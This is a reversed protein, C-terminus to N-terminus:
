SFLIEKRIMVLDFTDLVDDACLDGAKWDALQTNPKALLWEQLLVLDAVTLEGDSNVDGRISNKIDETATYYYEPEVTEKFYVRFYDMSGNMGSTETGGITYVADDSVIDAPELKIEGSAAIQGNVVLKGTDGSLVTSVTFWEGTKYVNKAALKQTRISDTIVFEIDGGNATLEM